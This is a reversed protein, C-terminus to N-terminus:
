TPTVWVLLILFDDTVIAHVAGGASVPGSCNLYIVVVVKKSTFYAIYWKLRM